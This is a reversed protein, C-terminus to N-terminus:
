SSIALATSHLHHRKKPDAELAKKLERIGQDFEKEGILSKGRLVLGEIDQPASALVTDAHERAKAPEKGLLYLEALKLQADRNQPNLEVAKKLEDFALRLDQLTTLKLYSLALRYHGDADKPDAQTVNKFEIVAEQYQGKDYYAIGRDRHKAKQAEPSTGSCGALGVLLIFALAVATLQHRPM